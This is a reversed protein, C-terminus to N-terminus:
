QKVQVSDHNNINLERESDKYNINIPNFYIYISALIIAISIAVTKPNERWEKGFGELFRVLLWKKKAAM